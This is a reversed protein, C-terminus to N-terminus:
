AHTEGERINEVEISEVYLERGTSLKVSGSKCLPCALTRGRGTAPTGCLLCTGSAAIRRIVLQAKHAVTGEALMEFCAELTLPEVGALDGLCLRVQKVAGAGARQAEDTVIGLIGMAMSSEHM